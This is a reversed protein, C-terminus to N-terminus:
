AQPVERGILRKIEEWSGFDLEQSVIRKAAAKRAEMDLAEVVYVMVGADGVVDMFEGEKELMGEHRGLAKDIEALHESLEKPPTKSVPFICFAVIGRAGSEAAKAARQVDQIVKQINQTIPRTKTEVGEMRYNTNCTKLELYCETGNFRFAIDAKRKGDPYGEELRINEFSAHRSLAAALEFKLWGEFKAQQSVALKLVSPQESLCAVILQRLRDPLNVM